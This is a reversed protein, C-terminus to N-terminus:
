RDPRLRGMFIWGYDRIRFGRDLENTMEWGGM